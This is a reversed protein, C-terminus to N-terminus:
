HARVSPYLYGRQAVFRKIAKNAKNLTFYGTWRFWQPGISFALLRVGSSRKDIHISM